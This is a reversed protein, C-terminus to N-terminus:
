EFGWSSYLASSTNIGLTNLESLWESKTTFINFEDSIYVEYSGSQFLGHGNFQNGNDSYLTYYSPESINLIKTNM